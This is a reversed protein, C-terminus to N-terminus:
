RERYARRIKLMQWPVKLFDIPKIKSQGTERWESVPVEVIGKQKARLIIELDFIWNSVFPKGFLLTVVERRFLKAGCQSDYVVVGLLNTSLTAFVRGMIHRKLRRDIIAGLRKVRSGFASHWQDNETLEKLLEKMVELPASLDADIFGVYQYESNEFARLMGRRVAEAKGCNKDLKLLEIQKPYARQVDFLLTYTNDTSGDDVFLCCFQPHAVLFEVFRPLQIRNAENFCPVVLCCNPM